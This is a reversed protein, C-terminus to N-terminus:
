IQPDAAPTLKGLARAQCCVKGWLDLCVEWVAEFLGWSWGIGQVPIFRGVGPGSDRCSSLPKQSAIQTFEPPCSGGVQGLELTSVGTGEPPGGGPPNM